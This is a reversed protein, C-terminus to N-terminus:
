NSYSFLYWFTFKYLKCMYWNHIYIHLYRHISFTFLYICIVYVNTLAARQTGQNHTTQETSVMPFRCPVAKKGGSSWDEQEAEEDEAKRRKAAREQARTQQKTLADVWLRVSVECAQVHWEQFQLRSPEDDPVMFFTALWKATGRSELKGVPYLLAPFRCVDSRGMSEPHSDDQPVKRVKWWRTERGKEPVFRQFFSAGQRELHKMQFDRLWEFIIESSTRLSGRAWLWHGFSQGVGQGNQVSASHANFTRRTARAECCGAPYSSVINLQFTFVLICTSAGQYFIGRAPKSTWLPRRM